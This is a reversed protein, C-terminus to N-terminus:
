TNIYKNDNNNNNIDNNNQRSVFYSLQVFLAQYYYKMSSQNVVSMTM